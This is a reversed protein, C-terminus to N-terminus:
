TDTGTERGKYLGCHACARHPPTRRPAAPHPPTRLTVRTTFTRGSGCGCIFTTTM